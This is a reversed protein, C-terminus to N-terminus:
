DWLWSEEEPDEDIENKRADDTIEVM